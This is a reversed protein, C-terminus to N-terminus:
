KVLGLHTKITLLTIYDASVTPYVSIDAHLNSKQYIHTTSVSAYVSAVPMNTCSRQWFEAFHRSLYQSSHRGNGIHLTDMVLVVVVCLREIWINKKLQHAHLVWLLLLPLAGTTTLIQNPWKGHFGVLCHRLLLINRCFLLICWAGHVSRRIELKKPFISGGIRIPVDFGFISSHGHFIYNPFM